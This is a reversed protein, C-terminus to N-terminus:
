SRERFKLWARTKGEVILTFEGRPEVFYERAQRV